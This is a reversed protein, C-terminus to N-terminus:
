TAAGEVIISSLGDGIVVCLIVILPIRAATVWDEDQRFAQIVRVLAIAIYLVFIIRLAGFILPIMATIDSGGGAAGAAGEFISVLYEEAAGFFAAGAPTALTLFVGGAMAVTIWNMWRKDIRTLGLKRSIKQLLKQLPPSIRVIEKIIRFVLMATLSGIVFLPANALLNVALVGGTLLFPTYRLVRDRTRQTFFRALRKRSQMAAVPVSSVASTSTLPEQAPDQATSYAM